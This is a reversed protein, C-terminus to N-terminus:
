DDEADLGQRRLSRDRESDVDLEPVEVPRGEADVAVFVFCSESTPEREGTRPDERDVRLRVRVSTRGAAYVWSEVV